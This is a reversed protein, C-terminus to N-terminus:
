EPLSREGRRSAMFMQMEISAGALDAGVDPFVMELLAIRAGIRGCAQAVNGPVTACGADDLGHLVASLLYIDKEGHASPISVVADGAQFDPRDSGATQHIPRHHKADVIAQPHDVVLATRAPHRQFIALSKSGRSGRRCEDSIPNIM